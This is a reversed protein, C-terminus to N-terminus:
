SAITRSARYSGALEWACPRTMQNQQVGLQWLLLSRTHRPLPRAQGITQCTYPLKDVFSGRFESAYGSSLRVGHLYLM